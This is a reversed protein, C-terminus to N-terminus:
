QALLPPTTISVLTNASDHAGSPIRTLATIDFGADVFGSALILRMILADGIAGGELAPALRVIDSARHGGRLAVAPHPMRLSASQQCQRWRHAERERTIVGLEGIFPM